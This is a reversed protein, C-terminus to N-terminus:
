AGNHSLHEMYKFASGIAHVKSVKPVISVKVHIICNESYEFNERWVSLRRRLTVFSDCLYLIYLFIDCTM